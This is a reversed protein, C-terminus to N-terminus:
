FERGGRRLRVCRFGIEAIVGLWAVRMCRVMGGAMGTGKAALGAFILDVREFGSLLKKVSVRM